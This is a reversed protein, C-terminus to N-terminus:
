RSIQYIAEHILSHKGSGDRGVLVIPTNESQFIIDNLRQILDERHFARLLKDPYKKILDAGTKEIELGGDFDTNPSINDFFFQNDQQEFRFQGQKIRVTQTVTTIFEGKTAYFQNFDLDEQEEKRQQKLIRIAVKEVLNDISTKDSPNTRAIFIFHNFSPLCIFTIGRLTFEIISIKGDFFQRGVSFSFRKTSFNIEPNFVYWLLQDSNDRNIEFGKLRFALSERLKGVAPDFRRDTAIPMPVFLTKLHYHPQDNISINQVLIPFELKVYSM